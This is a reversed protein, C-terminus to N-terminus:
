VESLLLEISSVISDIFSLLKQSWEESGDELGKKALLHLIQASQVNADIFLSSSDPIKAFYNLAQEFEGTHQFLTGLYYLVKDSEPVLMLIEKFIGKAKQYKEFDALFNRELNKQM